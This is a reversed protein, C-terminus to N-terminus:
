DIGQVRFRDHLEECRPLHSTSCTPTFAGPLAFLVVRKAGFVDDSTLDKREFPNDGELADNRIRTKFIASPVGIM